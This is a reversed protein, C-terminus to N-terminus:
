VTCQKSTVQGRRMNRYYEYEFASIDLDGKEDLLPLLAGGATQAAHVARSTVGPLSKDYLGTLLWEPFQSKGHVLGLVFGLVAGRGCNEGGVNTSALLGGPLDDLYKIALYLVGNLAGM